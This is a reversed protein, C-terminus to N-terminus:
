SSGEPATEKRLGASIWRLPSTIRWSFSSEIQQIHEDRKRIRERLTHLKDVRRQLKQHIQEDRERLRGRLQHLKEDRKRIGERLAERRERQAAEVAAKTKRDRRIMAVRDNHTWESVSLLYRWADVSWRRSTLTLYLHGNPKLLNACVDEVFFRWAEEGWPGNDDENFNALFVTVLDFPEQFNPLPRMAEIRHDIKSVGFFECLTTYIHNAEFPLDLGFAEHGFYKAMLQFHGPGCGIDLIRKARGRHLGLHSLQPMKGRSYYTLNLFKCPGSNLKQRETDIYKQQISEYRDPDLNWLAWNYFAQLLVSHEEVKEKALSCLEARISDDLRTFIGENVDPKPHISFIPQVVRLQCGDRQPPGAEENIM